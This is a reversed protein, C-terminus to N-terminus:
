DDTNSVSIVWRAPITNLVIWGHSRIGSTPVIVSLHLLSQVHEAVGPSSLPWVFRKPCTNIGRRNKLSRM